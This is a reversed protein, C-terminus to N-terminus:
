IKQLHLDILQFVNIFMVFALSFCALCVPNYSSRNLSTGTYNSIFREPGPELIKNSNVVSYALHSLLSLFVVLAPHDLYLLKRAWKSASVYYWPSAKCGTFILCSPVRWSSPGSVISPSMINLVLLQSKPLELAFKANRHACSLYM